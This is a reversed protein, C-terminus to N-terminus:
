KGVGYGAATLAKHFLKEQRVREELAEETWYLPSFMKQAAEAVKRLQVVEAKLKDQQEKYDMALKYCEEKTHRARSLNAQLEDVKTQLTDRDAVIFAKQETTM